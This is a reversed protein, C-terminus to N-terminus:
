PLEVHHPCHKITHANDGSAGCIPCVYKRLVPCIVKGWSDKVVHTTYFEKREKNKRCFACFRGEELSVCRKNFYGNTRPMPCAVVNLDQFFISHERDAGNSYRPYVNETIPPSYSRSSCSDSLGSDIGLYYGTFDLKPVTAPAFLSVSTPEAPTDDVSCNVGSDSNTRGLLPRM